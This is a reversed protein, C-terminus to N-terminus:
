LAGTERLLELTPGTESLKQLDISPPNLEDISPLGGVPPIDPVTPYAFTRTAFFEQAEASLLHRIFNEALTQNDTGKIIEAGSVNILAGADGSTFALDVPANPRSNKVRLAYYHNAFGTLISGNAVTNSVQFENPFTKVGHAQMDNLWGRTTSEGKTLRMTTVFAQFASYSPAWGMNNRLAGTEPFQQVTNPVDSESLQNTNYPVARARGAIGVWQDTRFESGVTSTVESPLSVTAGNDAVNALSGADVAIFVDAQPQGAEVETVIRNSLQSSAALKSTYSFDPYINAFLEILDLYLGGEGGGLFFSLKGELDPLDAIRTGSLEGRASVLPGSGRFESLNAGTSNNGSENNNDGSSFLGFCGALSGAGVAGAGVLLRRRTASRGTEQATRGDDRTEDQTMDIM